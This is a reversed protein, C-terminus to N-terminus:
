KTVHCKSCEKSKFYFKHVHSKPYSLNVAPDVNILKNEVLFACFRKIIFTLWKLFLSSNHTKMEIEKLWSFVYKDDITILNHNQPLFNVLLRLIHERYGRSIKNSIKFYKRAIFQRAIYEYNSDYTLETDYKQDSFIDEWPFSKTLLFLDHISYKTGDDKTFLYVSKSSIKEQLCTLLNLTYQNIDVFRDIKKKKHIRIAGHCSDIDNMRIQIVEIIRIPNRLLLDLLVETHLSHKDSEIISLTNIDNRKM